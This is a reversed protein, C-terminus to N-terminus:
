VRWKIPYFVLGTESGEVLISIDGMLHVVKGPSLDIPNKNRLEITGNKVSTVEMDGFIDGEKIGTFNQSRLWPYKFDAADTEPLSYIKSLYTILIPINDREVNEPYSYLEKYRTALVINDIISNDKLLSMWAEMIGDADISNAIIRYEEGMNWSEGIRMTKVDTANQEFIVRSINGKLFVYKEGMWGIASYYGETGSLTRNTYAYVNYKLLVPRTTYILNHKEIVRHSSNLLSQDIALTESDSSINTSFDRWFGAFNEASWRKTLNGTTEDFTQGSVYQSPASKLSPVTAVPSTFNNVTIVEAVIWYPESCRDSPLQASYKAVIESSMEGGGGGIKIKDGVRMIPQGKDDIIQIIGNKTNVSFGYPWVLLYDGARLCVDKIILEEPKNSLLAQMYSTAPEKVIPFFPASSINVNDLQFGQKVFSKGSWLECKKEPSGASGDYVKIDRVLWGAKECDEFNIIKASESRIVLYLSAIALLILICVVTLIKKTNGTM